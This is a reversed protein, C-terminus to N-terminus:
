IQANLVVNERMIIELAISLWELLSSAKSINLTFSFFTIAQNRKKFGSGIEGNNLFKLIITVVDCSGKQKYKLIILVIFEKQTGFKSQARYDSGFSNFNYGIFWKGCTFGNSGPLLWLLGIMIEQVLGPARVLWGPRSSSHKGSGVLRGARPDGFRLIPSFSPPFYALLGSPYM